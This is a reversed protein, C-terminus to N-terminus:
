FEKKIIAVKTKIKILKYLACKNIIIKRAKGWYLDM